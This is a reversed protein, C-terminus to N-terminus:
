KPNNWIVKEMCVSLPMGVYPEFNEIQEYGSKTYFRIADPQGTGTELIMKKYNLEAAWEELEKLIQKATGSGRFERKVFMRKLEVSEGDFEKFSGCGVPVSKNYIVVMNNILDLKNHPNYQDQISGYREYLEKDLLEILEAFDPSESNTRTIIYDDNM